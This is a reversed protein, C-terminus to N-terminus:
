FRLRLKLAAKPRKGLNARGQFLELNLAVGRDLQQEVGVGVVGSTTALRHATEEAPTFLGYVRSGLMELRVRDKQVTISPQNGLANKPSSKRVGPTTSRFSLRESLSFLTRTDSARGLGTLVSTDLRTAAQQAFANSSFLLMAVCVPFLIARSQSM